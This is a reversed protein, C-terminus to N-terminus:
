ANGANLMANLYKASIETESFHEMNQRAAQSFSNRLSEDQILQSLRDKYMKAHFEPVLFGNIGDEILESPGTVCDFSICPLGNCMAEGLVNPFGESSSTFAFISANQYFREMEQQQGHFIINSELKHTRVYDQAEKVKGGTGVFELTWSNDIRKEKLLEHFYQILVLQNKNGTFSGVNLIIPKRSTYPVMTKPLFFPNPICVFNPHRYKLALLEESKKTQLFVTKAKKYLLPNFFSRPWRLSSLPSTRNAVHIKLKLGLSALIVFGNYREGFGLVHTPKLQVLSTRLFHITKWANILRNESFKMGKVPPELIPIESNVPYFIKQKTLLIISVKINPELSFRNALLSVVRELGGGKLSATVMVLHEPM